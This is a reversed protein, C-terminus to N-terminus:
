LLNPLDFQTCANNTTQSIVEDISIQKVEAIKKAVYYVNYPENEQGRYPEPSMFPSDTELLFHKLDIKEVIEQLRKGNKFTVVGGIGLKAGLKIFRDAMELSGSYCHIDIKVGKAYEKLIEYTDNIADRSHVVIAKNYKKALQIQKIFLNKQEEKNDDKWHYDLGIEGIGVIKPNNINSEIINFSDNTINDIEEPHIGLTGFVNTYKSCYELVKLNSEDNTGSVIMINDKMKNIVEDINSCCDLHCHTDIMKIVVIIM